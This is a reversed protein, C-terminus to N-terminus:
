AAGAQRVFAICSPVDAETLGHLILPGTYGSGKILSLYLPYDLLGRGAPLHGADGDHDLDKGHALAIDPGLLEFAEHLMERMRPLEGRHYINAGDMVVKLRPSGVEDILQRAKKASDVVNNVEPEFALTVGASEAARAASRMSALLDSWADPTSNDPHYKWMSEPHRSGTCLTVVPTGLLTCAELLVPLRRLGEARASPDPDCMNFTGSVADMTLGHRAFADRIRVATNAEIQEPLTPMGACELDFQVAQAGSAVIADLVGDLSAYKFEPALVGIRMEHRRSEDTFERKTGGSIARREWLPTIANL